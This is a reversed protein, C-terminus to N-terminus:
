QEQTLSKTTTALIGGFSLYIVSGNAPSLPRDTATVKTFKKTDRDLRNIPITM